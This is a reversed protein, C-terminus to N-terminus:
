RTLAREERATGLSRDVASGTDAPLAIDRLVMHGDYTMVLTRVRGTRGGNRRSEASHLLDTPEGM